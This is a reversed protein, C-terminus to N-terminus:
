FNANNQTRKQKKVFHPPFPSARSNAKVKEAGTKLGLHPGMKPDM